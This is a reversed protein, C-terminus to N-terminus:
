IQVHNFLRIVKIKDSLDKMLDDDNNYYNNYKSNTTFIKDIYNTINDGNLFQVTMHSVTLYIKGCNRERLIKSLGKFTGGYICLDDVIMIDKGGFDQQSVEQVFKTGKDKSWSRSKSGSIMEGRWDLYNCLDVLPKFGGADSSMLILNDNDIEDTFYSSLVKDVFSHNSIIRANPLGVLVAHANHPHFIQYEKVKLSRLFDLVLKLGFSNYGSDPKDAQADLLCPIFISPEVDFTRNHADVFQSLKWLDDYSNLRWTVPSHTMDYDGLSVYSTGDPYHNMLRSSM